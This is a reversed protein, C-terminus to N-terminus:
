MVPAPENRRDTVIGCKKSNGLAAKCAERAKECKDRSWPDNLEDALKCIQKANDCISRTLKDVQRCKSSRPDLESPLVSINPPCTISSPNCVGPKCLSSPRCATNLFQKLALSVDVTTGNRRCYKAQLEVCPIKKVFMETHIDWLLDEHKKVFCWAQRGPPTDTRFVMWRGMACCVLKLFEDFRIRFPVSLVAPEIKDCTQIPAPAQGLGGGTSIYM